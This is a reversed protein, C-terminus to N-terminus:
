HFDSARWAPTAPLAPIPDQEHPPVTDVQMLKLNRVVYPGDMKSDRIVQGGFLLSLNHQGPDLKDWRQRGFAIPSGGEPGGWLEAYAWYAGQREVQARFRVFLDGGKKEVAATKPDVHGGPAHIQFMGRVQREFERGGYSGQALVQYGYDVIGPADTTPTVTPARFRFEYM